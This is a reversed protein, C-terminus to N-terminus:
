LALVFDAQHRWFEAVAELMPLHTDWLGTAAVAAQFAFHLTHTQCSYSHQIMWNGSWNGRIKGDNQMRETEKWLNEMIGDRGAWQM